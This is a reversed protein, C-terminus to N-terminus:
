EKEPFRCIFRSGKGTESQAAVTGGHEEVIWKVMSLGLGSHTSDSRAADARFFREWIHPLDQSSIGIGDDEVSLVINGEEKKLSIRISGGKKGYYVANSLLNMLVRIFFSEDALLFLDPQIDTRIVIEKEEALLREQEAAMQTIESVNLWEKQLVQRGQDARSLLLLQAVMASMERAKGAIVEIRSGTEAPIDRDEMMEECQLLIISLPTRLEHSVDSTFQRERSFAAELEGLLQDFTESLQYIEDRGASLGVRRSLDKQKRIEQVTDTIKKVPLFAHRIFLYSLLVLVVALGPLMVLALRLTVAFSQEAKTVSTIGRIYVTGYEEVSQEMDFVYFQESGNQITRLRDNELSTGMDFGAPLRGYLFVGDRSYVSLYVDNKIAYFDSDVQLRGDEEELEEIGKQVEERLDSQVSSLIEQSSLSFLVALSVCILLVMFGAYLGTLKAKISWGKRM